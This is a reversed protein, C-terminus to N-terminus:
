ELINILQISLRYKRNKYCYNINCLYKKENRNVNKKENCNYSKNVNLLKNQKSIYM